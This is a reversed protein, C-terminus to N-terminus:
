WRLSNYKVDYFSRIDYIERGQESYLADSIKVFETQMSASLFLVVVTLAIKFTHVIKEWFYTQNGM